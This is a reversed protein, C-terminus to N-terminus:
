PTFKKVYKEVLEQIKKRSSSQIFDNIGWGPVDRKQHRVQGYAKVVKATAKALITSRTTENLDIYVLLFKNILETIRQEVNKEPPIFTYSGTKIPQPKIKGRKDLIVAPTVPTQVRLQPIPTQVRLKKERDTFWRYRETRIRPPKRRVYKRPDIPDHYTGWISALLDLHSGDGITLNFKYQISAGLHDVEPSSLSNWKREEVYINPQFPPPPSALPSSCPSYSGERDTARINLRRKPLQRRPPLRHKCPQKAHDVYLKLQQDLVPILPKSHFQSSPIVKPPAAFKSRARNSNQYRYKGQSPLPKTIIPVSLRPLGEEIEKKVVKKAAYM